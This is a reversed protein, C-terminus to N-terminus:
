CVSCNNQIKRVVRAVEEAEASTDGLAVLRAIPLDRGAMSHGVAALREEYFRRKRGIDRHSAHPDMLISFGRSAAWDLSSESTAAM